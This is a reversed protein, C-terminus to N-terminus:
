GFEFSTVGYMRGVQVDTPIGNVMRVCGFSQAWGVDSMIRLAAANPEPVDLSVSEGPVTSLLSDLLRRAIPPEDAYLPGIKYGVRCPRLFGFGAIRGDRRHVFGRGGSQFLWRRMFGPRRMGSVQIDYAELAPWSFQDLPVCAADLTGSAIGQYRLDRHLFTFGGAEYFPTMDFVGDMGIPAGPRLRARLRRLREHWLVRGLGQRRLDARMIFLGMFGADDGYAIIVGGGALEGNRRIAIFAGPDFDWAVDIDSIGPNWGEQAAWGDLVPAEARTMQGIRYGDPLLPGATSDTTM